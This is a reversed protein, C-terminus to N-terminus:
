QVVSTKCGKRSERREEDSVGHELELAEVASSMAKLRKGVKIRLDPVVEGFVHPM